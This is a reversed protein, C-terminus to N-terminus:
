TVSRSEMEDYIWTGQLQNGYLPVSDSILKYTSCTAPASRQPGDSCSPQGPLRTTLDSIILCVALGERRKTHPNSYYSADYRRNIADITM